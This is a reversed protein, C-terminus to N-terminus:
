ILSLEYKGGGCSTSCETFGSITWRFNVEDITNPVILDPKRSEITNQNSVYPNYNSQGNGIIRNDNDRYGNSPITNIQNRAESNKDYNRSNYSGYFNNGQVSYGQRFKDIAEKTGHKYNGSELAQNGGYQSQSDTEPSVFRPKQNYSIQRSPSRDENNSNITRGQNNSNIASQSDGHRHSEHRTRSSATPPSLSKFVKDIMDKPITFM